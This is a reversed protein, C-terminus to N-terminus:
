PFIGMEKLSIKWYLIKLKFVQEIVFCTAETTTNYKRRFELFFGSVLDDFDFMNCTLHDEPDRSEEGM